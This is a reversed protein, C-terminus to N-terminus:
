YRVVRCGLTKGEQGMDLCIAMAEEKPVGPAAILALWTENDPGAVPRLEASKGGLQAPYRKQLDQFIKKLSDGNKLELLVPAFLEKQPAPVVSTKFAAIEKQKPNERVPKAAPPATEIDRQVDGPKSVPEVPAPATPPPRNKM